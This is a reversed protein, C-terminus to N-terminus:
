KWKDMEERLREALGEEHKEMLKMSPSEAYGKNEVKVPLMMGTGGTQKVLDQFVENNEDSAPIDEFLICTKGDDAPWIEKVTLELCGHRIKDGPKLESATKM